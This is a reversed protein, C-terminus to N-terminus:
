PSNSEKGLKTGLCLRTHVPLNLGQMGLSPIDTEMLMPGPPSVCSHPFEMVPTADGARGVTRSALHTALPTLQLHFVEM